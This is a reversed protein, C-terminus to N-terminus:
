MKIAAELGEEAEEETGMTEIRLIAMVDAVGESDEEM